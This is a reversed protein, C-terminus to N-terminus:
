STKKCDVYLSYLRHNELDDRLHVDESIGWSTKVIDTFGAKELRIKLTKFDYGFKHDGSQTFVYNLVQMETEWYKHWDTFGIKDWEEQSGSNYAKVFLEVDPVVIRLISNINLCRHCEKLFKPVENDANLHELTHECRIRNISKNAFPLNKRCDYQLSINPHKFLDINVWGPKGFPGAGINVSLDKQQKLRNIKKRVLPNFRNNISLLGTNLGLRLHDFSERTLPLRPILFSGLRQKFSRKNM